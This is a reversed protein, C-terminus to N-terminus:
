KELMNQSFRKLVLSFWNIINLLSFWLITAGFFAFTAEIFSETTFFNFVSIKGFVSNLPIYLMFFSLLLFVVPVIVSIIGLPFKLILYGVFKWTRRNKLYSLFAKMQIPDYQIDKSIVPMKVGFFWISLKREFSALFWVADFMFILFPVGVWILLLVTGLLLGTCLFIFYLIGLPFAIVSYLFNLYTQKEILMDFFRSDSYKKNGMSFINM